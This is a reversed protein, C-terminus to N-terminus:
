GFEADCYVFFQGFIKIVIEVSIYGNGNPILHEESSELPTNEM